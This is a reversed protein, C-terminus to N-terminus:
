PAQLLGPKFVCLYPQSAHAFLLRV